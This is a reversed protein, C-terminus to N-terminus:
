VTVGSFEKINKPNRKRVEIMACTKSCHVSNKSPKIFVKGCHPCIAMDKKAGELLAVLETYTKDRLFTNSKMSKIDSKGVVIVEPHQESKSKSQDTWFGKVEHMLGNVEFDPHYKRQKGQFIYDLSCYCRKIPIGHELNYVLFILEYTSGCFYGKYWGSKSRGSGERYGGSKWYQKRGKNAKAVGKRSCEQSCYKSKKTRPQFEKGCEPCFKESLIPTDRFTVRGGVKRGKLASSIKARTEESRAHSPQASRFCKSSCYKAERENVPTGCVLCLPMPDHNRASDAGERFADKREQSMVDWITLGQQHLKCHRRHSVYSQKNEYSKPCDPCTYM